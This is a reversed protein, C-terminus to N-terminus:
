DRSVSQNVYGRISRGRPPHFIYIKLKLSQSTTGCDHLLKSVHSLSGVICGWETYYQMILKFHQNKAPKLSYIVLLLHVFIYVVIFSHVSLARISMRLCLQPWNCFFGFHAAWVKQDIQSMNQSLTGQPYIKPMVTAIISNGGQPRSIQPLTTVHGGGSSGLKKKLSIKRHIHINCHRFKM